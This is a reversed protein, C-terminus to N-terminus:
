RLMKWIPESRQPDNEGLARLYGQTLTEMHKEIQYRALHGGLLAIRRRQDRAKLVWDSLAVLLALLLFEMSAAGRGRRLTGRCATPWVSGLCNARCTPTTTPRCRQRIM